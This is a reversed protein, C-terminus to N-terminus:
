GEDRWREEKGRARGSRGKVEEGDRSEISENRDLVVWIEGMCVTLITLAPIYRTSDNIQNRGDM